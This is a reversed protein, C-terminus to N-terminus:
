RSQVQQRMEVVRTGDGSLVYKRGDILLHDYIMAVRKGARKAENVHPTLKRRIERVRTSFDEGIFVKSGTRRLEVKGKLLLVKDKYFTCRAIVPSTPSTGTRHVRDFQVTSTVHLKDKIFDQLTRECTEATENPPKPLGYFLVNNRRSRCELDDLKTELGSMKTHMDDQMKKLSDNEARLGEVEQRLEHVEARMKEHAAVMEERMGELKKDINTEMSVLKSLIDKLTPAPETTSGNNNNNSNNSRSSNDSASTSERRRDGGSASQLRTQRLSTDKSGIKPDPGPNSEVDGCRMLLNCFFLHGLLLGILVGTTRTPLYLKRVKFRQTRRWMFFIFISVFGGCKRRFCLPEAPMTVKHLQICLLM